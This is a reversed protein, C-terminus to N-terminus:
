LIVKLFYGVLVFFVAFAFMRGAQSPREIEPLPEPKLRSNVSHTRMFEADDVRGQAQGLCDTTSPSSTWSM